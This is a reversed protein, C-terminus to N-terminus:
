RKIIKQDLWKILTDVDDVVVTQLNWLKELEWIKQKQTDELEGGPRKTELFFQPIVYDPIGPEGITVWRAKRRCEDCLRGPALFRGSNLRLPYFGRVQLVHRCQLEVDNETLKIVPSRLRFRAM